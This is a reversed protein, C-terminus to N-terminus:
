IPVDLSNADFDNLVLTQNTSEITTSEGTSVVVSLESVIFSESSQPISVIRNQNNCSCLPIMLLILVCIRKM